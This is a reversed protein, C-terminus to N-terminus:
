SGSPSAWTGYLSPLKRTGAGSGMVVTQDQDWVIPRSARSAGQDSTTGQQVSLIGVDLEASCYRVVVPGSLEIELSYLM